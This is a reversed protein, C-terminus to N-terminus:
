ERAYADVSTLPMTSRVYTGSGRAVPRDGCRAEAEAFYTRGARGVVKGTAELTGNSAPAMFYITFASTHLAMEEISNIAFVAADDLAKFYVSGHLTGDVNLFQPQIDIRLCASGDSVELQPSFYENCGSTRYLRELRRYHDPARAPPEVM